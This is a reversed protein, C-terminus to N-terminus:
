EETPMRHPTSVRHLAPSSRQPPSAARSETWPPSPPTSAPSRPPAMAVPPPSLPQSRPSPASSRPSGPSHPARLSGRLSRHSGHRSSDESKVSAGFDQTQMALWLEQKPQQRKVRKKVIKKGKGAKKKTGPTADAVAGAELPNPTPSEPTSEISADAIETLPRQQGVAGHGDAIIRRTPPPRPPEIDNAARSNTCGMSNNTAIRRRLLRLAIFALFLPTNLAPFSSSISSRAVVLSGRSENRQQANGGKNSQRRIVPHCVPVHPVVVAVFDENRRRALARTTM